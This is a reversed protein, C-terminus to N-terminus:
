TMWWISGSTTQYHDSNHEQGDHRHHQQLRIWRNWSSKRSEGGKRWARMIADMDYGQKNDVTDTFQLLYECRMVIPRHDRPQRDPILQLNRGLEAATHCHKMTQVFARPAALFDIRSPQGHEQAPFYTPQYRDITNLAVLDHKELVARFKGAAYGEVRHGRSGIATSTKAGDKDRGMDDNLDTYILPTSRAPCVTLRDDLWKALKNVHQKWVHTPLSGKPPFYITWCTIDYRGSIMRTELTRGPYPGTITHHMNRKNFVTKNFWM